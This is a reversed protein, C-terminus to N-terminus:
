CFNLTVEKVELQDKNVWEDKNDCIWIKDPCYMMISDAQEKDLLMPTSCVYEGMAEDANFFLDKDKVKIVLYKM